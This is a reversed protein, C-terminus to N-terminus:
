LIYTHLNQFWYREALLVLYELKIIEANNAMHIVAEVSLWARMPPTKDKEKLVFNDIHDKLYHLLKQHDVM